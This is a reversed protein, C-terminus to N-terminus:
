RGEQIFEREKHEIMLKLSLLEESPPLENCNACILENTVLDFIQGYTSIKPSWRSTILYNKGSYNGKCVIQRHHEFDKLQQDTLFEKLVQSARFETEMFSPVPCHRHPKEVTAGTIAEETDKDKLEETVEIKGDKFKLATLIPKDKKLIKTMVKHVDALKINQITFEKNELSGDTDKLELIKDEYKTLLHKILKEEITTLSTTKLIVNDGIQEINVDGYNSTYYMKM